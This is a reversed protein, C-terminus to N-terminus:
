KHSLGNETRKETIDKGGKDSILLPAIAFFLIATLPNSLHFVWEVMGAMTFGTVVALPILSGTGEREKDRIYYLAARVFTLVMLLVFYVGVPIGHDYATQLFTNHAHIALSGDELVANMDDHGTMNLQAIYARWIDTRGNSYDQGDQSGTDEASSTDPMTMTVDGDGADAVMGIAVASMADTKALYNKEMYPAISTADNGSDEGKDGYYDYEGEELGFMKSGFVQGFREICMFYLSDWNHGRRISDPYTELEYIVPRGYITSALRQMTFVAPFAVAVTLLMTALSVGLRRVSIGKRSVTFFFLMVVAVVAVALIGTRSMTFLMYVSAVAFVLAEKWIGAALERFKKGENERIKMLLKPMVVALVMTLYEATVTVTHFNMAFRTFVFSLFFRHAMCFIVNCIFQLCVGRGLIDLWKRRSGSFYYVVYFVGFFITLMIPWVRTNRMIIIMAFFAALPILYWFCIRPRSDARKLRTQGARAKLKEWPIMLIILVIFAAAMKRETVAHVDDSLANMYECDFQIILAVCIIRLWDRINKKIFSLVSEQTGADAGTSRKHWLVYLFTLATIVIGVIYLTNDSARYDFLKMPWVMVALVVAVAIIVPSLTCQMVRLVTTTFEREPHRVLFKRVAFILLFAAAAFCMILACSKKVGILDNWELSMMMLYGDVVTDKTTDSVVQPDNYSVQYDRYITAQLATSDASPEAMGLRFSGAPALTAGNEDDIYAQETIILYYQRGVETDVNMELEVWCPADTLDEVIEQAIPTPRGDDAVEYLTAVFGASENWEAVYLGLNKLHTGGAIFFEGIDHGPVISDSTGAMITTADDKPDFASSHAERWYRLPWVSLILLIMIIFIVGTFATKGSIKRQIM